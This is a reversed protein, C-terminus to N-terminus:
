IHNPPSALKTAAYFTNKEIEGGKGIMIEKGLAKGGEGQM